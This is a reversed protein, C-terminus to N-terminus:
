SCRIPSGRARILGSIISMVPSSRWCTSGSPLRPQHNGVNGEQIHVDDRQAAERQHEHGEQSGLLGPLDPSEQSHQQVTDQPGATRDEHTQLHPRSQIEPIRHRQHSQEAHLQQEVGKHVGEGLPLTLEQQDQKGDPRSGRNGAGDAAEIQSGRHRRDQFVACLYKDVVDVPMDDNGADHKHCDDCSGADHQQLHQLLLTHMGGANLDDDGASKDHQHAIQQLHAQGAIGEGEVCQGAHNKGHHQHVCQILPPHEPQSQHDGTCKQRQYQRNDAQYASRVEDGGHLLESLVLQTEARLKSGHDHCHGERSHQTDAIRQHAAQQIGHEGALLM